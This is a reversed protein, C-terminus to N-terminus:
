MKKYEAIVAEGDAGAKKLWDATLQDGINKFGAALAPSPKLVKMGNKALEAHYWETKSEWAKWGRAEARAAAKLVAEQTPKDLADFAAKNVFTIDNVAKQLTPLNAYRDNGLVLAVRKEAYAPAAFLAMAGAMMGIRLLGVCTRGVGIKTGSGM